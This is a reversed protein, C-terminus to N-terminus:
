TEIRHKEAPGAPRADAPPPLRFESIVFFRESFASLFFGSHGRTM